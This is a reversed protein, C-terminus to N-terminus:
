IHSLFSAIVNEGKKIIVVLDKFITISVNINNQTALFNLLHLAGGLNYAGGLDMIRQIKSHTKHYNNAQLKKSVFCCIHLNKEGKTMLLFSPSFSHFLNSVCLCIYVCDCMFIRVYCIIRYLM